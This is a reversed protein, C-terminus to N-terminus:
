GMSATQVLQSPRRCSFTKALTKVMGGEQWVQNKAHIWRGAVAAGTIDMRHTHGFWFGTTGKANIDQETTGKSLLSRPFPAMIITGVTTGKARKHEIAAFHEFSKSRKAAFHEFFKPKHEGYIYITCLLTADNM